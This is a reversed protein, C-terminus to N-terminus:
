GNKAAKGAIIENWLKQLDAQKWDKYHSKVPEKINKLRRKFLKNAKIQKKLGHCNALLATYHAHIEATDDIKDAYIIVFDALENM